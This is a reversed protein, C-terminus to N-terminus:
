HKDRQGGRKHRVAAKKHGHTGATDLKERHVGIAEDVSHSAHIDTETGALQSLKVYFAKLTALEEDNLDEVDVLRNSANTQSAILENLKLQIAITEKNQSHQIVFVMLFTVITTSTNIVLQWTDSFGFLPGSAGWALIVACALVFAGASGTVRTAARALREFPGPRRTADDM